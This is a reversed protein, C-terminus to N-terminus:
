TERSAPRWSAPYSNDVAPPPTPSAGPRLTEVPRQSPPRNPEEPPATQVASQVMLGVKAARAEKEEFTGSGLFELYDDPIGYRAQLVQTDREALQQQLAAKDARERELESMQAREAEQAAAVMPEQAKLRDRLNKAERNVKEIKKRAWEPLDDEPSPEPDAGSPEPTEPTPDAPRQQAAAALDAPTPTVPAAPDGIIPEAAPAPDPATM